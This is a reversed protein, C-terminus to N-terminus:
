YLNKEARIKELAKEMIDAVLMSGKDNFHAEDFFYESKKSGAESNFASKVDITAMDSQKLLTGLKYLKKSMASLIAEDITFFGHKEYNLETNIVAAPYIGIAQAKAAIKKINEFVAEASMEDYYFDNAGGWITLIKSNKDVDRDFRELMGGTTDGNIGRNIVALAHSRSNILNVWKNKESVMYGFTLSDGLATVITKENNM